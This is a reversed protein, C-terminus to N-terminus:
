SFTRRWEPDRPLELNAHLKADPVGAGYNDVIAEGKFDVVISADNIELITVEVKEISQHNFYYLNSLNEDRDYDYGQDQKLVQGVTLKADAAKLVVTAEVNPQRGFEKLTETFTLQDSTRFSFNLEWIDPM